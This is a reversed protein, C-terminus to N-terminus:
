AALAELYRRKKHGVVAHPVYGFAMFIAAITILMVQADRAGHVIFDRGAFLVVLVAMGSYALAALRLSLWVPRPQPRGTRPDITHNLFRM